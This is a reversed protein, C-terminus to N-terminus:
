PAVKLDGPPNGEMVTRTKLSNASLASLAESMKDSQGTLGVTTQVGQNFVRVVLDVDKSLRLSILLATLGKFDMVMLRHAKLGEMWEGNALCTQYDRDNGFYIFGGAVPNQERKGLVRNAESLLVKMQSDSFPTSEGEVEMCPMEGMSSKFYVVGEEGPGFDGEGLYLGAIDVLKKKLDLPRLPNALSERVMRLNKVGQPLRSAELRLELLENQAKSLPQESTQILHEMKRQSEALWQEALRFVPQVNSPSLHSKNKQSIRWFSYSGVTWIFLAALGVVALFYINM